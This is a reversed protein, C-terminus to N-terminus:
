HIFVLSGCEQTAQNGSNRVYFHDASCSSPYGAPLDSRPGPPRCPVLRDRCVDRSPKKKKKKKPEGAQKSALSASGTVRSQEWRARAHSKTAKPPARADEAAAQSNGTTMRVQTEDLAQAVVRAKKRRSQPTFRSIPKTVLQLVQHQGLGLKMQRKGAETSSQEKKM